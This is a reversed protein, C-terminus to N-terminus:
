YKRRGLTLHPDIPHIQTSVPRGLARLLSKVDRSGQEARGLGVVDCHELQLPGRCM